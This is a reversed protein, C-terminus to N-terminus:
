ARNKKVRDNRIAGSQFEWPWRFTSAGPAAGQASHASLMPRAAKSKICVAPLGNGTLASKSGSSTKCGPPPGTRLLGPPASDPGRDIHARHGEVRASTGRRVAACPPAGTLGSASCALASWCRRAVEVVGGAAASGQARLGLPPRPLADLRQVVPLVRAHRSWVARPAHLALSPAPLHVVLVRPSPTPTHRSGCAGITARCAAGGAPRRLGASGDAATCRTGGAVGRGGRGVGSRAAVACSLRDCRCGLAHLEQGSSVRAIANPSALM